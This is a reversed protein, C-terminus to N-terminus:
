LHGNQAEFVLSYTEEPISDCSNEAWVIAHAIKCATKPDDFDFKQGPKANMRKRLTMLWNRKGAQDAKAWVWRGCLRELSAIHYRHKYTHLVLKIATLGGRNDKFQLHGWADRGTASEWKCGHAILNGPNFNQFGLTDCARANCALML